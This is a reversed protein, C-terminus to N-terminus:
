FPRERAEEMFKGSFDSFYGLLAVYEEGLDLEIRV